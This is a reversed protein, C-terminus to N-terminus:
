SAGGTGNLVAVSQPARSFCFHQTNEDIDEKVLFSAYEADQPDSSLLPPYRLNAAKTGNVAGQKFL